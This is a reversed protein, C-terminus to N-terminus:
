RRAQRYETALAKLRAYFARAARREAETAALRREILFSAADLFRAREANTLGIIEVGNEAMYARGPAEAEDWRAGVERAAAKGTTEDILRQLDGPLEAYSEPNMVVGFSAVYSFLETSYDIYPALRFAFVGDYPIVLGDIVGKDLNGALEGTPMGAPSAGWARLTQGIVSSPHRIRLGQFDEPERVARGSTHVVGPAHGFLYLIRVGKHEDALFDPVLDMLVQSAQEGSDFILPLHTLEMLPFRGAPIGHMFWAIDVDGRRVLNYQQSMKGLQEAPYIDIVLRGNSRRELEKAWEVFTVHQHHAPPAHHSLKLRYVEDQARAAGGLVLLAAAVGCPWPCCTSIM